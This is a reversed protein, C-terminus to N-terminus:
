SKPKRNNVANAFKVTKRYIVPIGIYQMKKFQFLLQPIEDPAVYKNAYVGQTSSPNLIKIRICYPNRVKATM